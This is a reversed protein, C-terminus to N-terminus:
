KENNSKVISSQGSDLSSVIRDFEHQNDIGYGDPAWNSIEHITRSYKNGSKYAECEAKYASNKNDHNGFIGVFYENDHHIIGISLSFVSADKYVKEIYSYYEQADDLSEMRCLNGYKDLHKMEILEPKSASCDHDSESLGAISRPILSLLKRKVTDDSMVEGDKLEEYIEFLMNEMGKYVDIMVEEQVIIMATQKEDAVKKAHYAYPLTFIFKALKWKSYNEIVEFCLDVARQDLGCSRGSICTAVSCIKYDFAPNGSRSIQNGSINYTPYTTEFGMLKEADGVPHPMTQYHQVKDVLLFIDTTKLFEHDLEEPWCGTLSESITLIKNIQEKQNSTRNSQNNNKELLVSEEPKSEFYKPIQESDNEIVNLSNCADNRDKIAEMHRALFVTPLVSVISFPIVLALANLVNIAYSSQPILYIAVCAFSAFSCLYIEIFHWEKLRPLESLFFILLAILMAFPLLVTYIGATVYWDNWSYSQPVAQFKLVALIGFEYDSKKSLHKYQEVVASSLGRALPEQTWILDELAELNDWHKIRKKCQYLKLSLIKQLEPHQTIRAPDEVCPKRDEKSYSIAESLNGFSAHGVGPLFSSSWLLLATLIFLASGHQIIKM